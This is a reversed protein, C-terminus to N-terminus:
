VACGQLVDLVLHQFPNATSPVPLGTEHQWVCMSGLSRCRSHSRGPRLSTSSFPQRLWNLYRMESATSLTLTRAGSGDEGKESGGAEYNPVQLAGKSGSREMRSGSSGKEVGFLGAGSPDEDTIMSTKYDADPPAM